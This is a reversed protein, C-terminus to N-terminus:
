PQERRVSITRTNSFAVSGFLGYAGRLPSRVPSEPITEIPYQSVFQAYNADVAAINVRAGDPFAVISGFIYYGTTDQWVYTRQYYLPSFLNAPEDRSPLRLVFVYGSGAAPTWDFRVSDGLFEVAGIDVTTDAAPVIIRPTGPVVAEATVVEGAPGEIRLRYREGQRPTFRARYLGPEAAEEVYAHVVGGVEVSVSAGSAPTLGGRYVGDKINRTYEVLIEQEATDAVLMGHVVLARLEGETPYPSDLGACSLVSQLLLTPAFRWSTWRGDLPPLPDPRTRM